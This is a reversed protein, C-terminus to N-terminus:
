EEIHIQKTETFYENILLKSSFLFYSFVGLVRGGNGAPRKARPAVRAEKPGRRPGVLWGRGGEGGRTKPWKPCRPGGPVGGGGRGVKGRERGKGKADHAPTAAAWSLAGGKGRKPGVLHGLEARGLWGRGGRV